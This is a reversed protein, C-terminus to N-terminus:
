VQVEMWFHTTSKTAGEFELSHLCFGQLVAEGLHVNKLFLNALSKSMSSIFIINFSVNM